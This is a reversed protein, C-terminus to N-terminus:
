PATPELIRRRRGAGLQVDHLQKYAGGRELLEDHRGQEILHGHELVLIKDAHRVTSLRHAIMFTTRGQMLLDLADLIVAETKSDISSTPEDLVLIPADKLFARAVCVRQREGGSLRAGREGIVTEYQKPLKMIFDHANANQAAKIVDDMSADLKGYRINDALTGSFLLPEQLVISIQERLSKVSVDTVDVGDILITGSSPAYFRPILSVLTTKGAGTPGVLAIVQGAEATFNIDRLTDQRGSYSFNVGRFEIKGKVRALELAEPKDQIEPEIDLLEGAMKLNMLNDQLSGLTYSIAELPKYVGGIYAIIVLLDGPLIKGKLAEYSGFGIVMAIGFGTILKIVLSFLTQRVTLNVRADVATRGQDRFRKHEHGERGFAVIVRLMSIAEHIISLSVEELEKVRRIRHEIHKAYLGLSMYLFPLVTLSLLALKADIVYIIVFMGCVTLVSELIPAFALVIGAAADAQFNIAYILPGSRRQDHFALSLRQAHQFLDSRFDLVMYQQLKTSVYNSLVGLLNECIVILLSACAVIILLYVKNQAISGLVRSLWGPMAHTGLVSDFLFKMPWPAALGFVTGVLIIALSYGM